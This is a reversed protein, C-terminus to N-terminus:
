NEDSLEELDDWDFASVDEPSLDGGSDSRWREPPRREVDLVVSQPVTLVCAAMGSISNELSPGDGWRDQRADYIHVAASLRGHNHSRGGLVYIRHDLAAIGPEGHGAPLPSVMTWQASNPSYCSVELVDQRFGCDTNSGGIVYLKGLLAVMGHWARRFPSDPLTAWCNTGPDYCQFEKLYEEERRGCAIYVKGDLAAGAHAFVEKQLPAVYEWTNTRPDYREVERLDEHYNRGAVAYIYDGLICVAMDAHEQQLSQIQFWRNHRPDYRWCRAEARFGRVNNDGGILYVFDNYVAVGQNSMLPAQAVTLHRWGKLLPNLFWAQSSLAASPTGHRGGFGAVCRFRSRIQTRPGQLLPQFAENEHYALAQAVTEKLPCPGLKDHLRQLVHAEMLPFRVTDLLKPLETLSLDDAELQPPDFHYLLAGEYAENESRVQLANSGLLAYLKELPLHRYAPTRSFSVFNKLVFADLQEALRGLGFLDALRYAELLNEADVWSALFDCCFRIAELIQLQCAASLIEEVSNLGIELESTYIFDLIRRMANYSIGQIQVEKQDMEKLGSTFMGRFYDCSAALLIRHAQLPQGEVKLIVDFLVGRDRLAGLGSLLSQSHHTSRYTRGSSEKPAPRFPSRFPPRSCYEAM